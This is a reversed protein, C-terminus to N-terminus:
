AKWKPGSQSDFMYSDPNFHYASHNNRSAKTFDISINGRRCDFTFYHSVKNENREYIQKEHM